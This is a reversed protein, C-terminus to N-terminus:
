KGLTFLNLASNGIGNADAPTSKSYNGLNGGRALAGMTKVDPASAKAILKAPTTFRQTKNFPLKKTM